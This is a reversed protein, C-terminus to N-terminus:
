SNPHFTIPMFTIGQPATTSIEMNEFYGQFRVFFGRYGETKIYLTVKEAIELYVGNIYSLSRTTIYNGIPYVDGSRANIYFEFGNFYTMIFGYSDTTAFGWNTRTITIKIYKNVGDSQPIFCYNYKVAESITNAVANSTVSNM